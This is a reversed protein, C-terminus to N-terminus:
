WEPGTTKGTHEYVYNFDVGYAPCVLLKEPMNNMDRNGIVGSIFLTDPHKEPTLRRLIMAQMDCKKRLREVEELAELLDKGRQTYYQDIMDENQAWYLLRVTIDDEKHHKFWEDNVM